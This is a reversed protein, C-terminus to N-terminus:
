RQQSEDIMTTEAESHAVVRFIVNLINMQTAVTFMASKM